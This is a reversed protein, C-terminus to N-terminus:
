VASHSLSFPNSRAMACDAWSPNRPVAQRFLHVRGLRRRQVQPDIQACEPIIVPRGTQKRCTQRGEPVHLDFNGADGHSEAVQAFGAPPAFDVHISVQRQDTLGGAERVVAAAVGLAASFLENTQNTM